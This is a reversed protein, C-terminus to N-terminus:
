IDVRKAKCVSRVPKPEGIKTRWSGKRVLITQGIWGKVKPHPPPPIRIWAIRIRVLNYIRISDEASGELNQLNDIRRM